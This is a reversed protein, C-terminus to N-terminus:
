SSPFSPEYLEAFWLHLLDADPCSCSWAGRVPQTGVTQLYTQCFFIHCRPPWWACRLDAIYGQPFPLWHGGTSHSFHQRSRLGPLMYRLGDVTARLNGTSFLHSLAAFPWLSSSVILVRTVSPSASVIGGPCSFAQPGDSICLYRLLPQLVSCFKEWYHHGMFHCYAISLFSYM